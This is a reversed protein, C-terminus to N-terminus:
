KEAVEPAEAVELAESRRVEVPAGRELTRAVTCHKEHSLALLRDVLEAYRREDVGAGGDGGVPPAVAVDILLDALSTGGDDDTRVTGSATAVLADPEGRRTLVTDASITTCGALAALLLEVPTLLGEGRGFEIAAGSPAEARYHHRGLRTMVIERREGGDAAPGTQRSREGM